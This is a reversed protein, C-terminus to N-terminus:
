AEEDWAMTRFEIKAEPRHGITPTCKEAKLPLDLQM